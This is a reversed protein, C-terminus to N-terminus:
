LETYLQIALNEKVSVSDNAQPIWTDLLLSLRQAHYRKTSKIGIFVDEIFLSSAAQLKGASRRSILQRNNLTKIATHSEKWRQTQKKLFLEMIDSQTGGSLRFTERSPSAKSIVNKGNNQPSESECRNCHYSQPVAKLVVLVIVM